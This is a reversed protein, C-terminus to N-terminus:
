MNTQIAISKAVDGGQEGVPGTCGMMVDNVYSTDFDHRAQLERLLGAGLKAERLFRQRQKDTACAGAVLVKLAVVRERLELHRARFVAGMGGRGLEGLVEYGGILM